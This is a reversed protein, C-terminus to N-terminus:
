ADAVVGSLSARHKGAADAVDVPANVIRGSGVAGFVLALVDGPTDAVFEGGADLREDSLVLGCLLERPRNRSHLRARDCCISLSGRTTIRTRGWHVRRRDGPIEVAMELAAEREATGTAEGDAHPGFIGAEGGSWPEAEQVASGRSRDDVSARCQKAERRPLEGDPQQRLTPAPRNVTRGANFARRGRGPRSSRAM